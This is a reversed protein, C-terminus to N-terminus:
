AKWNKKIFSLVFVLILIAVTVSMTWMLTSFFSLNNTGEYPFESARVSLIIIGTCVLIGIVLMIRGWWLYRSKFDISTIIISTLLILVFISGLAISYMYKDYVNVLPVFISEYLPIGCLSKLSATIISQSINAVSMVLSAGFLGLSLHPTINARNKNDDEKLSYDLSKWFAFLIALIALLIGVLTWVIGLGTAFDSTFDLGSAGAKSATDPFKSWFQAWLGQVTAVLAAATIFTRLNYLGREEPSTEM